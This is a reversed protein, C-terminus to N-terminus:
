PGEGFHARLGEVLAEAQLQRFSPDRLRRQDEPNNLNCLEILVATPIRNNRLVAPVWARRRVIYSRVPSFGHLKIERRQFASVFSDALKRSWGESRLLERESMKFANGAQVEAFRQYIGAAPVPVRTSRHKASPIYFMSGEASQHLSDAHFSLFILREDGVGKRHLKRRLDNALIWRLNVAVRTPTSGALDLPPTSLLVEDEDRKLRSLPLRGTSRDDTLPHVAAQTERELIAIFRNAVDAAHDDEWVTGADAGPDRGGHGVDIVVHVGSLGRRRATVALRDSESRSTEWENRRPHGLPLFEPRLEDAPIRIPHGIRIDTVDTIGSDKAFALAAENVYRGGLRGTFRLVVHSYLTEGSRLRYIAHLGRADEGFELPSDAPVVLEIPGRPADDSVSETSPESAPVAEETVPEAPPSVPPETPTTSTAIPVPVPEERSATDTAAPPPTSTPQRSTTTGSGVPRLHKMVLTAPILVEDGVRMPRHPFALEAHKAGLGTYVRAIRWPSQGAKVRHKWGGQHPRSDPLHKAVIRGGWGEPWLWGPVRYYRGPKPQPDEAYNAVAKWQDGPAGARQTLRWWGDGQEARVELILDGANTLTTRLSPSDLDAAHLTGALGIALALPLWTALRPLRAALPRM